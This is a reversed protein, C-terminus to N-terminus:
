GSRWWLVGPIKRADLRQRNDGMRHSEELVCHNLFSHAVERGCVIAFSVSLEGQLEAVVGILPMQKRVISSVPVARYVSERRSTRGWHRSASGNNHRLLPILSTRGM